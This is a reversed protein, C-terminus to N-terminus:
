ARSCAKKTPWSTCRCNRTRLSILHSRPPWLKTPIFQRHKIMEQREKMLGCLFEDIRLLSVYCQRIIFSRLANWPQWLCGANGIFSCIGSLNFLELTIFCTAFWSTFWYRLQVKALDRDFEYGRREDEHKEVMPPEEASVHVICSPSLSVSARSWCTAIYQVLARWQTIYNLRPKYKRTNM